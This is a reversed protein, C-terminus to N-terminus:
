NQSFPNVSFSNWSNFDRIELLTGDSLSTIISTAVGFDSDLDLPFIKLHLVSHCFNRRDIEATDDTHPRKCGESLLMFNIFSIHEVSM